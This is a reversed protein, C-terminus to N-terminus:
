QSAQWKDRKGKPPWGLLAPTAPGAAARGEGVKALGGHATPQAMHSTFGPRGGQGHMVEPAEPFALTLVEYSATSVWPTHGGSVQEPKKNSISSSGQDRSQPGM